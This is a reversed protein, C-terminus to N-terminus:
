RVLLMKKQETFNGALLRAFYLGSPVLKGQNDRSDGTLSQSRSLLEHNLLTKVLQGHINYIRLQVNGPATLDFTISTSHFRIM